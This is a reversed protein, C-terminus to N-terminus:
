IINKDGLQKIEEDSLGLFGSYIEQNHEGLKEGLFQIKGPYNTLKPIIGPILVDGYEYDNWKLISERFLLHPDNALDKISRVIDAPVEYDDLIKVVEEATYLKVWDGIITYLKEQNQIRKPYEQFKRDTLIDERNMAKALSIWIKESSAAHIVVYRGDKTEFNEAPVAMMFRNGARELMMGTKSFVTLAGMTASFGTEALSVDIVEGGSNNVDRNYLAMMLAFLGLFGTMYDVLPYGSRVPPRDPYGSTYTLGAFASATRDYAGKKGYPGTQGYGSVLCIILNPNTKHLTESDLNFKKIVEPRFNIVAVDAKAVLKKAIEQGEKTHLDLTISKKNRGQVLWIPSREKGPFLKSFRATDGTKPKEVKIVQAGFDGMVCGITPAAIVTSFDIVIIGELPLKSM